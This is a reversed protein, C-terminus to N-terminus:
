KRRAHEQVLKDRPVSVFEHLFAAHFDLQLHILRLFDYSRNNNFIAFCLYSRITFDYFNFGVANNTSSFLIRYKEHTIPITRLESFLIVYRHISYPFFSGSFESHFYALSVNYKERIKM